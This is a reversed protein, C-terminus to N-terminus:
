GTLNRGGNFYINEVLSFGNWKNRIKMLVGYSEQLVTDKIVTSQVPSLSFPGPCLLAPFLTKFECKLRVTTKIM